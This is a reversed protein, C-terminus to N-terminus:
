WNLYVCIFVVVAPKNCTLYYKLESIHKPGYFSWERLLCYLFVLVSLLVLIFSVDDQLFYAEEIKISGEKTHM